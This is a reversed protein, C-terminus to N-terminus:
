NIVWCYKKGHSTIQSLSLQLYLHERLSQPRAALQAEGEDDHDRSGRSYGSDQYWDSDDNQNIEAEGKSDTAPAAAEPANETDSTNTSLSDAPEEQSASSYEAGDDLELLPNEQIIREVEQNLELTSLQLLRISHQLQPTLKLQQSLKLQLTPKM